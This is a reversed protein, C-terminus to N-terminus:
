TTREQPDPFPRLQRARETEVELHTHSITWNTPPSLSTRRLAFSLLSLGFMGMWMWISTVPEPEVIETVPM